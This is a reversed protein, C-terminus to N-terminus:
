PAAPAITEDEAKVRVYPTVRNIPSARWDLKIDRYRVCSSGAQCNMPDGRENLCGRREKAAQAVNRFLTPEPMTCAHAVTLSFATCAMAEHTEDPPHRHGKMETHVVDDLSMCCVLLCDRNASKFFEGVGYRTRSLREDKM